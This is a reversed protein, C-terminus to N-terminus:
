LLGVSTVSDAPASVAANDTVIMSSMTVSALSVTTMVIVWPVFMWIMAGFWCVIVITSSSTGLTCPRRSTTAGPKV